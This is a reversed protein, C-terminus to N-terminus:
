PLLNLDLDNHLTIYRKQMFGKPKLALPEGNSTYFHSNVKILTVSTQRWELPM